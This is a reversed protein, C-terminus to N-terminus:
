NSIIITNEQIEFHIRTTKEIQRLLESLPMNRYATGTFPHKELAPESFQYSVNYWRALRRMIQGLPMASFEFIGDTWSCYLETDVRRITVSGDTRRCIIQRGPELTYKAGGPSVFRVSGESLTIATQEEDAYDHVNFRTGYVEIVGQSTHVKFPLSKNGAVNFYAEGKVYVQRVTDTPLFAPPYTLQSESNLTIETGDALIVAYEGGRPVTLTHSMSLSAGKIASKDYRLMGSENSLSVHAGTQSIVSSPFIEIETGNGTQLVARRTGPAITTVHRRDDPFLYQWGAIFVAVLAVAAAYKICHGLHLLAKSFAPIHSSFKKWEAQPDAPDGALLDQRMRRLIKEYENRHLPDEDIWKRLIEEEKGNASGSLHKSILEATKYRQKLLDKM